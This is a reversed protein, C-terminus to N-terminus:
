APTTHIVISANTALYTSFHKVLEIATMACFQFRCFLFLKDVTRSLFMMRVFINRSCLFFLSLFTLLCADDGKM